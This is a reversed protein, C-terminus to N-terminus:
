DPKRVHLFLNVFEPEAFVRSHERSQPPIFQEIVGARRYILQWDLTFEIFNRFEKIGQADEDVMNAVVVLGGPLLSEHFLHVLEACTNDALYDFLGACYILDFNGDLGLNGQRISRRLLQHVSLNVTEIKARRAFKRRMEQLQGSAHSLTEQNFDLLTCDAEHSLESEQFFDQLERAPGCGVNLIRARRGSRVVRATESVLWTKLKEIRNRVSKAPLQSVLLLHIMKEYLSRGEPQNRHIMNMMEYDGAYGLPKFFTRQAFPACLFLDHWHRRVFEQHAGLREPPIQYALEEFREHQHGFTKLIDEFLEREQDPQWAKGSARQKFDEQELWQRIGTLYAAIDVVLVKFDKAIRYEKEWSRFFQEYGARTPGASETAPIFVASEAEPASLKVEVHLATGAHVLGSVVARGFYIVEDGSFIKFGGLVESARLGADPPLLEFTAIHRSLHLVAGSLELGDAAQFVVRLGPSAAESRPLRRSSSHATASNMAITQFLGNEAGLSLSNLSFNGGFCSDGNSRRM